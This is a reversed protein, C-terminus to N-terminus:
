WGQLWMIKLIRIAFVGSKSSIPFIGSQKYDPDFSVMYSMSNGNQHFSNQTQTLTIDGQNLVWRHKLHNYPIMM